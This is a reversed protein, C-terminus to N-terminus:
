HRNAEAASLHASLEGEEGIETQRERGDSYMLPGM